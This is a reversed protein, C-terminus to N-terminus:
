AAEGFVSVVTGDALSAFRQPVPELGFRDVRDLDHSVILLTCGAADAAEVFAAMVADSAYPDLAATPEDAAIVDPGHALARAIAARQREGVSLAGPLKDAHRALGLRELLAEVSGDDPLGLLRRPLAVNRRVSLAPLLGGVQPVYGLHRGRLRALVASGASGRRLDVAAAGARPAFSFLRARAPAALLALIDLLTSKGCGSPGTLALRAGRAITLRPVALRFRHPGDGRVAELGAIAYLTM